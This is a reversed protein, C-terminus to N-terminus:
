ISGPSPLKKSVQGVMGKSLAVLVKIAKMDLTLCSAQTKAPPMPHGKKNLQNTTPMTDMM